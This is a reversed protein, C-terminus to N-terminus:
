RLSTTGIQISIRRKTRTSVLEMDLIIPFLQPSSSTSFRKQGDRFGGPVSRWTQVTTKIMDLVSVCTAWALLQQDTPQRNVSFTRCNDAYYGRYAPGLDLIYLDGDKAEHDARAPGGPSCCQYDNGLDTLAEGAVNVAAAHLQNFVELESIGPEIIQRAREYMATTCDIARRMMAVEDADKKRRLTWLTERLSEDDGVHDSDGIDNPLAARAESAMEQRLTCLHQAVFTVCEIRRMIRLNMM